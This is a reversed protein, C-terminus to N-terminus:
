KLYGRKVVGCKKTIAPGRNRGKNKKSHKAIFNLMRKKKAESLKRMLYGKEQYDMHLCVM